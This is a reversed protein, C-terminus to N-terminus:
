LEVRPQPLPWAYSSAAGDYARSAVGPQSWGAAQGRYAGGRKTFVIPPM